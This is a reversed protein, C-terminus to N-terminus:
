NMRYAELTDYIITHLSKKPQFGLINKAKDINAILTDVDGARRSSIEIGPTERTVIKTEEMIEKVSYGVGSGLNFIDYGEYDEYNIALLFADTIDDVHIYDRICTGDKTQYDDGYIVWDKKQILIPILHHPIPNTDRGGAVNFFRFIIAKIGFLKTYSKILEEALYKTIGYFSRPNVTDTEKFVGSGAYVAATSAFFIKRIKLDRMLKLLNLTTVVNSRYYDEPYSMSKEVEIEAALHFVYVREYQKVLDKIEQNDIEQRLDIILHKYNPSAIDSPNLDIGIVYNNSILKSVFNKGIFGSAGTVLYLDM